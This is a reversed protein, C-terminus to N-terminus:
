SVWLLVAGVVAAVAAAVAVGAGAPAWGSRAEGPSSPGLEAAREQLRDTTEFTRTGHAAQDPDKGVLPASGLATRTGGPPRGRRPLAFCRVVLDGAHIRVVDTLDVETVCGWPVETTRLPNAVVVRTPQEAVLPRVGLVYSVGGLALALLAAGVRDGWPAERAFALANVLAIGAAVLFFWGLVLGLGLRHVQFRAPGAPGSAATVGRM